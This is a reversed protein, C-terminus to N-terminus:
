MGYIEFSGNSYGVATWEIGCWCILHAVALHGNDVCWTFTAEHGCECVYTESYQKARKGGAYVMTDTSKERVWKM